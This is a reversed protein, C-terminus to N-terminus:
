KVFADPVDTTKRGTIEVVIEHPLCILSQGPAHIKGQRVCLGDPCDAERIYAEGDRIVLVNKGGNAGILPIEADADLPWVGTEVGGVTVRVSQGEAHQVGLQWLFAGCVLILVFAAPIWDKKRILGAACAHNKGAQCNRNRNAVIDKM